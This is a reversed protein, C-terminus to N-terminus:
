NYNLLVGYVGLVVEGMKIYDLKEATDTEKHYNKNRLYSTDTVMLAPYEFEWYSRHDSWDIGQMYKTTNISEIPLDTMQQFYTKVKRTIFWEGFEGALAIFNGREPYVMNLYPIPYNQSNPEDSFFGIMELSLMLSISRGQDKMAKAHVYSGMQLTAYFPPEELTYAVFDVRQALNPKQEKVLRSLELLGAVGSANDDAGPFNGYVDYHAGVVITKQAPDNRVNYSVILNKVEINIGRSEVMYKQETVAYGQKIWENRVYDAAQNLTQPNDTNRGILGSIAAVHTRLNKETVVLNHKTKKPQVTPNKTFFIMVATLIVITSLAKFLRKITLKPQADYALEATKTKM